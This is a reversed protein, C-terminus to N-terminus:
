LAKEVIEIVRWCKNKSLPRTEEIRVRDGLSCENQEDHAMFKRKKRVVKKFIPHMFSREVQVLVSKDMRDSTVIGIRQKRTSKTTM